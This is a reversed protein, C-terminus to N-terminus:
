NMQLLKEYVRDMYTDFNYRSKAMEYAKEVYVDRKEAFTEIALRLSDPEPLDLAIFPPGATEKHFINSIVPLGSWLYQAIKGSSLVMNEFNPTGHINKYFAIGIDHESLMRRYQEEDYFGTDITIGEVGASMQRLREVYEETGMSHGHLTLTVRDQLSSNVFSTICDGLTAWGALYGSYLLRIKAAPKRFGVTCPRLSVPLYEFHLPIELHSILDAAREPSQILCFACQKLVSKAYELPYLNIYDTSELSIYVVRSLDAGMEDLLALSNFDAAFLIDYDALEGAVHSVFFRRRDLRMFGGLLRKLLDRSEVDVITVHPFDAPQGRRMRDLYLDVRRGDKDFLYSCINNLTPSVEFAYGYCIM